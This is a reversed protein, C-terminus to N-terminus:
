SLGLTRPRKRTDILAMRSFCAARVERDINAWFSDNIYLTGGEHLMLKGLRYEPPVNKSEEGAFPLKELHRRGQLPNLATRVDLAKLRRCFLQAENHKGLFPPTGDEIGVQEQSKLANITSELRTLRELIGDEPRRRPKRSM